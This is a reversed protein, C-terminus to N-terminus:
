GPKSVSILMVEALHEDQLLPLVQNVRARDLM